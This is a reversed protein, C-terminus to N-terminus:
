TGKMGCEACRFGPPPRRHCTPCDYPVLLEAPQVGFAGALAVLDDVDVRRCGAEIAQIMPGRVSRGIGTLNAALQAQSLGRAKRLAAVNARVCHGIPGLPISTYAM